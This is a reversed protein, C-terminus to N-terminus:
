NPKLFPQLLLLICKSDFLYKVKQMDSQDSLALYHIKPLQLESLDIEIVNFIM